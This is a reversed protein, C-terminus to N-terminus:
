IDAGGKPPKYGNLQANVGCNIVKSADIEFDIFDVGAAKAQSIADSCSAQDASGFGVLVPVKVGWKEWDKKVALAYARSYNAAGVDLYFIAASKAHLYNAGSTPSPM